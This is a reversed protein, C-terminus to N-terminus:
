VDIDIRRYTEGFHLKIKGYLAIAALSLVVFYDSTHLLRGGIIPGNAIGYLDGSNHCSMDIFLSM